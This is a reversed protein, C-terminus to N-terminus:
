PDDWQMRTSGKVRAYKCKLSLPGQFPVYVEYYNMQDAGVCESQAPGFILGSGIVYGEDPGGSRLRM